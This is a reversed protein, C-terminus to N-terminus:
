LENKVEEYIKDFEDKEEPYLTYVPRPLIGNDVCYSYLSFSDPVNHPADIYVSETPISFAKALRKEMLCGLSREYDPLFIIKDVPNISANTFKIFNIYDNVYTLYEDYRQSKEGQYDNFLTNDLRPHTAMKEFQGASRIDVGTIYYFWFRNYEYENWGERKGFQGPLTRRHHNQTSSLSAISRALKSNGEVTAAIKNEFPISDDSFIVDRVGSSTIPHSFFTENRPATITEHITRYLTLPSSDIQSDPFTTFEKEQM